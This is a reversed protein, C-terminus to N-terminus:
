VIKNMGIMYGYALNEIKYAECKERNNLVEHERWYKIFYDTGICINNVSGKGEWVDYAINQIKTDSQVNDDDYVFIGNFASKKLFKGNECAKDICELRFTTKVEIIGFVAESSVIVFDKKRFLVPIDLNFVIIDIQTSIEGQENVVFGTGCEAYGPLKEEICDRLIVEKYRGEEGWHRDAILNRVRNKEATLEDSISRVYKEYDINM